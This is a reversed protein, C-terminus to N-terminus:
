CLISSKIRPAHMADMTKLINIMKKVKPCTSFEM